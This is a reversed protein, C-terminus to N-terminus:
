PRPPKRSPPEPAQEVRSKRALNMAEFGRRTRGDIMAALLPVLLGSFLERQVFRTRGDGIPELSFIHEGDFLGAVGLKGRWRLECYEDWVVIRPKFTMRKSGPPQLRVCLKAGVELDGTASRISPNWEPFRDFDTLVGWVRVPLANIEIETRLEKV